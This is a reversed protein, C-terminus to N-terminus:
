RPARIPPAVWATLLFGAVLLVSYEVGNRGGGVVFWGSPAHVLIIGVSLQFAFWLALPRQFKGWALLPTGVVEVITIGWALPIGLPFGLSALWGGFDPPGNVAVRYGGHIFILAALVWRLATMAQRYRDPPTTM